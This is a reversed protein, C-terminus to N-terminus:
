FKGHFYPFLHQLKNELDRRFSFLVTLSALLESGVGAISNTMYKRAALLPFSFSLMKPHLDLEFGHEIM